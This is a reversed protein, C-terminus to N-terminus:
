VVYWGLSVCNRDKVVTWVDPTLRMNGLFTGNKSNSDKVFVGSSSLRIEAHKKSILKYLTSEDGDYQIAIDCSADRGVELRVDYLSGDWDIPERKCYVKM